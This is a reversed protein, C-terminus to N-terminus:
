TRITGCSQVDANESGPQFMLHDVYSVSLETKVKAIGLSEFQLYAMAGLSDQTLTQDICIGVESGSKVSGSVFHSSIIKEFLNKGM